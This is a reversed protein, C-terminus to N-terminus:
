DDDASESESERIADLIPSRLGDGNGQQGDVLRRTRSGPAMFGLQIAKVERAVQLLRKLATAENNKLGHKAKEELRAMEQELIAQARTAIVDVPAPSQTTAGAAPDRVEGALERVTSESVDFSRLGGLGGAAALKVIEPATRGEAAAVRIAERMEDSLKPAFRGM